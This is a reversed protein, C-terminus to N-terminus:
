RNYNTNNCFRINRHAMGVHVNKGHVSAFIRSCFDCSIRYKCSHSSCKYIYYINKNIGDYENDTSDFGFKKCKKQKSIIMM